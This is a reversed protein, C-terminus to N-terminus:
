DKKISKELLDFKNSMQKLLGELNQIDRQSAISDKEKSSEISESVPPMLEDATQIQYSNPMKM